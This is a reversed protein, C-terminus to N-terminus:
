LQPPEFVSATKITYRPLDRVSNALVIMLQKQWKRIYKYQQSGDALRKKKLDYDRWRQRFDNWNYSKRKGSYSDLLYIRNKSASYSSVCAWHGSEVHSGDGTEPEYLYDVIVARSRIPSHKLASQLHTLTTNKIMLAAVGLKNAAKILHKTSTGNRTTRCLKTLTKINTRKGLIRLATKLSTPGCTQDDPQKIAAVKTRGM